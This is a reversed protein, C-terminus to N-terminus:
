SIKPQQKFFCYSACIGTYKFFIFEQMHLM